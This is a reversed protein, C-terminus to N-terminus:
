GTVALGEDVAALVAAKSEIGVSLRIMGADIGLAARDDDSLGRHSTSAPHSATTSLDGLSPSFPIDRAAAFFRDVAAAGGRITFSVMSGYQEAFQRRALEHEPHDSLGPYIVREVKEHEALHAAAAAANENAVRARVALTGLGRAALWAEFPGPRFGWTTAVQEVRDWDDAQGCLLGLLVDSHGNMIKTLSEMVLDAGFELPRCVAPSAFTNDVLLRAGASHAIEALAAVDAVRLTPNSITEVIVLRTSSTVAQEVATLDCTDVTTSAIGLRAAEATFLASSRGYLRNSIVVHDGSALFALLATSLASMGSGCVVAQEAGHLRRCKEALLDANPQGDRSYVYGSEDGDLLRGAQAVDDCAYVAAPFIPAAM